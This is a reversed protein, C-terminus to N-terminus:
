TFSKGDIERIRDDFGVSFAKGGGAPAMGSVLNSHGQGEISSAEGLSASFSLVRGDALGALFTDSSSPAM